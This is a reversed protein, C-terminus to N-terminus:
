NLYGSLAWFVAFALKCNMEWLFHATQTWSHGGAAPPLKRSWTSFLIHQLPQSSERNWGSAHHPQLSCAARLAAAPHRPQRPQVRWEREPPGGSAWVTALARTVQPSWLAWPIPKPNLFCPRQLVNMPKQGWFPCRTDTWGTRSSWIM